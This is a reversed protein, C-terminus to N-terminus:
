GALEKVKAILADVEEPDDYRYLGVVRRDPGVLILRTPHNIVRGGTNPDPASEGIEFKLGGRVIEAVLDPDGTAFRWREPDAGYGSAYRDIIEPTDLDGDISISMLQAGTGATENQVKAMATSMGPCWLPCSTFFFDLVTYRGDLSEHTIPRGNRDTLEFEPVFFDAYPNEEDPLRTLSGSGDDPALVGAPPRYTAVLFLIIGLTLLLLVLSIVVIHPRM